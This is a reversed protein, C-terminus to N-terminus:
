RARWGGACGSGAAGSVSSRSPCCSRAPTGQAFLAHQPLAEKPEALGPMGYAFPVAQLLLLKGSEVAPRSRSAGAFQLKRMAHEHSQPLVEVIPLLYLACLLLAAVGALVGGAAARGAERRSGIARLEFLAFLRRRARRAGGDRSAPSCCGPSLPPSCGPAAAARAPSPRRCAM